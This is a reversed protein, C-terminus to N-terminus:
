KKLIDEIYYINRDEDYVVKLKYTKNEELRNFIDIDCKYTNKDKDIIYFDTKSSSSFIGSEGSITNSMKESIIINKESTISEIYNDSKEIIMFSGTFVSLLLFLIFIGPLAEHYEMFTFSLLLGFMCILFLIVFLM